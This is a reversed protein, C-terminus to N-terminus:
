NSNKKYFSITRKLGEDIGIKPQWNFYNKVKGIKPYLRKIEDKRMKIAGFRPRGGRSFKVLKNIIERVKKPKGYGVNYIGSSINKKKIIKLVLNTLDDVYLFDRLQKGNTCAFEKNKICFNIVQPILRDKKQRPGYVQYMRLIIVKFNGKSKLLFNSALYKAKGYISVPLSKESEKQPSKKKGYELSSGAQIFLRVKKGKLVDLLNKTAIYHISFTQEKNQHDINGSFNIVIDFNGILIKKLKKSNKLDCYFYKVKKLNSIKKNKKKCLLFVNFNSLILKKALNSGLFGAGGVILINKTM